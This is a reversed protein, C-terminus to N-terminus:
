NKLQDEISKQCAKRLLLRTKRMLYIKQDQTGHSQVCNRFRLFVEARDKSSGNLHFPQLQLLFSSIHRKWLYSSFTSSSLINRTIGMFFGERHSTDYIKSRNLYDTSLFFVLEDHIRKFSEEKMTFVFIGISSNFIFPRYGLSKELYNTLMLQENRQLLLRYSNQPPKIALCCHM